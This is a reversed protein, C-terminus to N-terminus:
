KTIAISYTAAGSLSTTNTAARISSPFNKIYFLNNASDFLKTESM